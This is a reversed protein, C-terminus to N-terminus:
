EAGQSDPLASDIDDEVSVNGRAGGQNKESSSYNQKDSNDTPLANLIPQPFLDKGNPGSVESETKDKWGYNNKLNFISFTANLKNTLAGKEVYSECKQLARKISNSYEQREGYECLVRRSTDLHVALGSITPVPEIAFFEDIKKDLEEVSQFKLPRGGPHAM